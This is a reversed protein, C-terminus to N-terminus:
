LTLPSTRHYWYAGEESHNDMSSKMFLSFCAVKEFMFRLLSTLYDHLCLITESCGKGKLHVKLKMKYQNWLLSHTFSLPCALSLCWHANYYVTVNSVWRNECSGPSEWESHLMKLSWNSPVLLLVCFWVSLWINSGNLLSINVKRERRGVTQNEEHSIRAYFHNQRTFFLSFFIFCQCHM